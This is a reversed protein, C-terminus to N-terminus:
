VPKQLNNSSSLNEGTEFNQTEQERQRAHKKMARQIASEKGSWEIQLLADALEDIVVGQKKPFLMLFYQKDAEWTLIFTKDLCFM